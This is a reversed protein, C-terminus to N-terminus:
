RLTLNDAPFTTHMMLRYAVFLVVILAQREHTRM